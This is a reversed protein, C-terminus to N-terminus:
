AETLFERVREFFRRRDDRGLLDEVTRELVALDVADALVMAAVDVADKPRAFFTKFVALDVCALVPVDDM